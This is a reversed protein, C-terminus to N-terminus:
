ASMKCFTNQTKFFYKIAKSNLIFIFYKSVKQSGSMLLAHEYNIHIATPTLQMSEANNCQLAFSTVSKSSLCICHKFIQVYKRNLPFAKHWTEHQTNCATSEKHQPSSFENSKQEQATVIRIKVNSDKTLTSQLDSPPPTCKVRVRESEELFIPLELLLPWMTPPPWPPKEWASFLCNLFIADPKRGVSNYSRKYWILNYNQWDVHLCLVREHPKSFM